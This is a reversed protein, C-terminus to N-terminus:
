TPPCAGSYLSLLICVPQSSLRIAMRTRTSLGGQCRETTPPARYTLAVSHWGMRPNRQSTVHWTWNSRVCLLFFSHPRYKPSLGTLKHPEGKNQLFCCRQCCSTYSLVNAVQLLALNRGLYMCVLEAICSGNKVCEYYRFSLHNQLNQNQRTQATHM